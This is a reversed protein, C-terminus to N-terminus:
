RWIQVLSLVLPLSVFMLVNSQVVTQASFQYATRHQAALVVTMTGCPLGCMVAAVESGLPDLGLLLGLALIAVPWVLLRLVNVLYGYPNRILDALASDALGFGVIMMAVPAMTAGVMGFAGSVVSPVEWPAFYIVVAVVCALVVPSKVARWISFRRGPAMNHEGFTFFALNFVLNGAVACLLGDQGYLEQVIPMGIFTMNPFTILNVFAHRTDRDLPLALSLGWMAVACLTFYGVLVASTTGVSGALERSYPRAAAVVVAFPTIVQMLLRGLDEAFRESVFGSRRLGFGLGGALLIKAGIAALAGM